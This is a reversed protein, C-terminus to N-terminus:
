AFVEDYTKAVGEWGRATKDTIFDAQEISVGLRELLREQVEDTDGKDVLAGNEYLAASSGSPSIILSLDAM